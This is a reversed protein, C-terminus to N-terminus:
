RLQLLQAAVSVAIVEPLKSHIGPIGIPSTIHDIDAQAFGCEELRHRFRSWKSASGILGIYSLDQRQRQRHLCSSVIELDEAHSFSMILVASGSVLEAVVGQVPDSHEVTVNDPLYDPFVEDRSDIWRTQFPLEGLVKVLAHGVHGGGFLAVPKLAPQLRKMLETIDSHTVIEYSLYVVGGCCQGLSPGLAIRQIPPVPARRNLVDRATAMAQFELHGGGITGVLGDAFVAMYSGTDRPVSGQTDNVIVLVADQNALRHICQRLFNM